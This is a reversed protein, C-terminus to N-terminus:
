NDGEHVRIDNGNLRSLRDKAEGHYPCQPVQYVRVCARARACVCVCTCMCEYLCVHMCVNMYMYMHMFKYM